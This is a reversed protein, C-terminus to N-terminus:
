PYGSFVNRGSPIERIQGNSVYKVGNINDAARLFTPADDNAASFVMVLGKGRRGGTRTFETIANRFDASMRDFSSPPTGFSCNVVDARESVYGFVDLIDIPTAMGGFGIRIPLFTCNPALGRMASRSDHSGVAISAVPTGHFDGENFGGVFLDESNPDDDEGQYDKPEQHLRVNRLAPHELDFGDDIVAVVIKPDGTTIEWAEPAQVDADPLLDQHTILDASLYWQAPFLAPQHRILEILVQPQCSLVEEREFIENATKLPNKGTAGTVRLVHTRGIRRESVLHFDRVIEDLEEVSEEYLTLFIRDDIIIEENTGDVTYIHHAVVDKRAEAMLSDLDAPKSATMRSMRASLMKKRSFLESQEAASRGLISFDTSHEHLKLEQRGLRIYRSYDKSPKRSGTSKRKSKKTPMFSDGKKSIKKIV